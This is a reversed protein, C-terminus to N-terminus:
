GSSGRNRMWDRLNPLDQRLKARRDLDAAVLRLEPATRDDLSSMFDDRYQRHAAQVQEMELRDRERRLDRHAEFGEEAQKAVEEGLKKAIEIESNRCIQDVLEQTAAPEILTLVVASTDILILLAMLFGYEEGVAGSSKRLAGLADLQIAIGNQKAIPATDRAIAAAQEQQLSRLKSRAVPLETAALAALRQNVGDYYLTVTAKAQLLKEQLSNVEQQLAKLAQMKEQWVPGDGAVGTGGTGNQEANTILQQRQYALEAQRVAANAAVVAPDNEIQSGNAKTEASRMALSYVLTQQTAIARNGYLPNAQDKSIASQTQTQQIVRVERQVESRFVTLVLPVAVVWGIVAAMAIRVIGTILRRVGRVNGLSVVIYRDLLFIILGWFLGFIPSSLGLHLMRAGFLTASGTALTATVLLAGGRATARTIESRPRGIPDFGVAVCLARTVPSQPRDDGTRNGMQESQGDHIFTM